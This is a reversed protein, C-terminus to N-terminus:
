RAPKAPDGVGIRKDDPAGHAEPHLYKGREADAKDLEVPIRNREAWADQRIGTVQWSVKTNPEDTRIAFRNGAVEEAVMARAFSGIVTLQYRFDRNLAEFWAPLDVRAYGKADTVVNGSYINAMEDSEIAIHQLYRNAPDLPHDIRFLKTTASLTGTVNVNGEFRGALGGSVTNVGRIAVANVSNVEGLVAAASSGASANNVKAYVGLGTNGSTRAEIAWAGVSGTAEFVSTTGNPSSGWARLATALGTTGFNEAAIAPGTGTTQARVGIGGADTGSAHIATGGPAYTGAVLAMPQGTTANHVAEVAVGLPSYVEGRVGTVLGTDHIARGLVGIGQSGTAIGSTGQFVGEGAVGVGGSTGRVGTGNTATTTGLVGVNTGSIASADGHVGIGGINRSRGLVGVGVGSGDSENVGYIATGGAANTTGRVGVTTADGNAFGDVGVGGPLDRWGFVGRGNAGAVSLGRVGETGVGYVGIGDTANTEARLGVGGTSAPNDFKAFVAAAGSAPNNNELWLAFLASSGSWSNGYHGHDSRAVSNAAGSGGFSASFETGNLLLGSGATYSSGGADAAPAWASGNWKLVQGSSPATASVGRGQLARASGAVPTPLIEIRPGMPTGNVEVQLWRNAEAFAVGAFNLDIAFVGDLVPYSVASVTAGQQTGGSQADYLKFALNANGNLPSGSQELFGQFTFPEAQASALPLAAAIVLALALFKRNLSM